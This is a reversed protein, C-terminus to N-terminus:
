MTSSRGWPSRLEEQKQQDSQRQAEGSTSAFDLKELAAAIANRDMEKDENRTITIPDKFPLPGNSPSQRAHKRALAELRNAHPMRGENAEVWEGFEKRIADVTGTLVIDFEIGYQILDEKKINYIWSRVM